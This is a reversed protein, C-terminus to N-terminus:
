QMCVRNGSIMECYGIAGPYGYVPTGVAPAYTEGSAAVVPQGAMGFPAGIVEVPAAVLAGFPGLPAFGYGSTAPAAGCVRNGSIMECSGVPATRYYGYIPAEQASVATALACLSAASIFALAYRM